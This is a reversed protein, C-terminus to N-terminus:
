RKIIKQINIPKNDQSIVFIYFGGPQASLNVYDTSSEAKVDYLAVGLANYVQVRNGPKLGQIIVKGDSTPNPYIKLTKPAEPVSSPNLTIQYIVTVGGDSSVVKVQDGEMLDARTVANGDQDIVTMVAGYAVELHAKFNNVTTPDVVGSILLSMQDVNYYDSIVYALYTNENPNLISIFYTKFYNGNSSTVVVKDDKYIIGTERIFGMKDAVIITAGPAPTLNNLLNHVSVGSPVFKILCADQDVSYVDSTVYADSPNTNPMLHYLIKTMGDEAIVEFYANSTAQVDVYATDYNLKTLTLYRDKEDIVTMTAGAPLVVGDVVDKLLTYKDFGTIEGTSGSVTITYATSTLVANDSLGEATVSMIYKTVNTSDASIVILTDNNSIAASETLVSGNASSVVKLAQLPDAKDIKDYLDSVKDGMKVGLISENDSYGQSVKLFRSTVTSKYVTIPNLNHVGINDVIRLINYPWGWGQANLDAVHITNWETNEPTTGLSGNPEPNPRFIEPKRIYTQIWDFTHGPVNWDTWALGTGLTEILEFDNLDTAPKLGDRVSDNLIKWIFLNMPNWMGVANDYVPITDGWCNKAFDFDIENRYETDPGPTFWDAWYHTMVWVDGPYVIPNVCLDNELTAPNIAWEAEGVWKRGPVYRRHRNYFDEATTGYAFTEIASLNSMTIMYNTLDIPETGPNCIEIFSNAWQDMFVFESLFPEPTFPQINEPSQEKEFTVKYVTSTVNDEATVTFTITRDEVPGEMAIARSVEVKSNLNSQTYTLAPIGEIDYPIRVTYNTRGPTFGPITDQKWGYISAIDGKFSEPIDPWTISALKADKNPLYGELKLYYDKSKGSASTVRLIDGTVLDPHAVGSKFIIEWSANAPKELYKFLTDVRTAFDLRSITDMGPVKETVLMGSYAKPFPGYFGTKFNFGYKPIVINDDATPPLVHIGFKKVVPSSGCVYLTLTDGTIASMYSSDEKAAWNNMDASDILLIRDYNWALGPKKKFQHMLSDNNRIGWPVTITGANLDVQVKGTKSELTQSNLVADVHNGATWFVARWGELSIDHEYSYDLIPVPIWESDFFDLGRGSAFDINGTKVAFNRILVCLRTAETVGAVDYASGNNTGSAKDFVGGVQDIIVSDQEDMDNLFIHRLYYTDRGHYGFLSQWGPTISDLGPISNKEQRHLLMDAINYFEPKTVIERYFVPDKLWMEPEFDSAAAILFSEGPALNKEPLRISFNPLVAWPVSNFDLCGFEFESLDITENGMNTIEVYNQPCSSLQAETIILNTYPKTQGLAIGVFLSCMLVFFTTKFKM